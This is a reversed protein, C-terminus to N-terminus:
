YNLNNLVDQYRKKLEDKANFSSDKQVNEINNNVCDM